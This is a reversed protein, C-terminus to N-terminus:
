ARGQPPLKRGYELAAALVCLPFCAEFFFTLFQWEAFFIGRLRVGPLDWGGPGFGLSLIGLLVCATLCGVTLRAFRGHKWLLMEAVVIFGLALITIMAAALLYALLTVTWTFYFNSYYTSWPYLYLLLGVAATYHAPIEIALRKV